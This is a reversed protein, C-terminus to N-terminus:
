NNSPKFFHNIKAVKQTKEPNQKQKKFFNGFDQDKRDRERERKM